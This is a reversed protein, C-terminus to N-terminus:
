FAGTAGPFCVRAHPLGGSRAGDTVRLDAYLLMGQQLPASPCPSEWSLPVLNM